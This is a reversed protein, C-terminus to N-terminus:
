AIRNMFGTRNYKWFGLYMDYNWPEVGILLWHYYGGPWDGLCSRGLYQLVDSKKWLLVRNQALRQSMNELKHTCPKAYFFVDWLFNNGSLLQWNNNDYYDDNNMFFDDSSNCFYVFKLRFFYLYDIYQKWLHIWFFLVINNFLCNLKTAWWCWMTTMQWLYLIRM